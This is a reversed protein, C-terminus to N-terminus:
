VLSCCNTSWYVFFDPIISWMCLNVANDRFNYYMMLWSWVLQCPQMVSMCRFWSNWSFFIQLNWRYAFLSWCQVVIQSFFFCLHSFYSIWLFVSVHLRMVRFCVRVTPVLMTLLVGFWGMGTRRGAIKPCGSPHRIETAQWFTLICCIM